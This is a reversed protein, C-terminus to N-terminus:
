ESSGSGDFRRKLRMNAIWLLLVIVSFIGLSAYSFVGGRGRIADYVQDAYAYWLGMLITNGVIIAPVTLVWRMRLSGALFPVAKGAYPIFRGFVVALVGWRRMVRDSVHLLPAARRGFWSAMLRKRTLWYRGVMYFAIDGLTSGCIATLLMMEAPLSLSHALSLGAIFILPVGTNEFFTGALVAYAGYASVLHQAQEIGVNRSKRSVNEDQAGTDGAGSLLRLSHEAGVRRWANFVTWRTQAGATGREDHNM